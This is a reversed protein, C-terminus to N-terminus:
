RLAEMEDAIDPNLAKALDLPRIRRNKHWFFGNWFRWVQERGDMVSDGNKAKTFHELVARAESM